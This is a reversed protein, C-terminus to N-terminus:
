GLEAYKRDFEVEVLEDPNYGAIIQLHDEGAKRNIFDGSKNVRRCVLTGFKFAVDTIYWTKKRGNEKFSYRYYANTM